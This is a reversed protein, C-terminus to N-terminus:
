SSMLLALGTPRPDAPVLPHPRPNGPRLGGPAQPRSRPFAPSCKPSSKSPVSGSNSPGSRAKPPTSLPFPAGTKAVPQWRSRAWSSLPDPQNLCLDVQGPIDAPVAALETLKREPCTIRFVSGRTGRGGICVFLSGDPGVEVDTPAFGFDGEATMFEIPESKWTAGAREMPLARVRGFTWDQIFLAGHYKEPFHPHRYCAVGTPSGRGFACHGPAHGYLPRPTELRKSIWGQHSGSLVHFVRTPRYWPLSVDREDDSDFSFIDGLASFAFDYANRFGHAFIEGGSLDPKM